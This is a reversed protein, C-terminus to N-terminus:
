KLEGKYWLYIVFLIALIGAFMMLQAKDSVVNDPRYVTWVNLVQKVVLDMKIVHM